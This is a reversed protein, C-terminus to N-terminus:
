IAPQHFILDPLRSIDAIFHYNHMFFVNIAIFEQFERTDGNSAAQQCGASRQRAFRLNLRSLLRNGLFGLGSRGAQGPLHGQWICSCHFHEGLPQIKRLDPM